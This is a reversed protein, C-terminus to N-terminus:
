FSPLMCVGQSSLGSFLASYYLAMVALAGLFIAAPIVVLAVNRLFENVTEGIPTLLVKCGPKEGRRM